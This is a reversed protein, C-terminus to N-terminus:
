LDLSPFYSNLIMLSCNRSKQDSNLKLHCFTKPWLFLKKPIWHFIQIKLTEKEDLIGIEPKDKPDYILDSVIERQPHWKRRDKEIEAGTLVQVFSVYTRVMWDTMRICWAGTMLSIICFLHGILQIIAMKVFYETNQGFHLNTSGM